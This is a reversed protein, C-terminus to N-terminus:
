GDAANIQEAIEKYKREGNKQFYKKLEQISEFNREGRDFPRERVVAILEKIVLNNPSMIMIGIDSTSHGFGDYKYRRLMGWCQILSDGHFRKRNGQGWTRHYHYKTLEILENLKLHKNRPIIKHFVAKCSLLEKGFERKLSDIVGMDPRNSVDLIKTGKALHVRLLARNFWLVTRWDRSVYVGHGLCGEVKLRGGESDDVFPLRFGESVINEINEPSTAHYYDISGQNVKHMKEASGLDYQEFFIELNLYNGILKYIIFFLHAFFNYM